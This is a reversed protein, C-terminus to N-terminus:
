ARQSQLQRPSTSLQTHISRPVGERARAASKKSARRDWRYRTESLTSRTAHHKTTVTGGWKSSHQRDRILWDVTGRRSLSMQLGQDVPRHKELSDRVSRETGWPPSEGCIQRIGVDHWVSVALGESRARGAQAAARIRAQYGRGHRRLHFNPRAPALTTNHDIHLCTLSSRLRSSTSPPPPPIDGPQAFTFDCDHKLKPYCRPRDFCRGGSARGM